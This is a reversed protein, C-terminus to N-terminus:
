CVPFSSMGTFSFVKKRGPFLIQHSSPNWTTMSGLRKFAFGKVGILLDDCGLAVPLISPDRRVRITLRTSISDIGGDRIDLHLIGVHVIFDPVHIDVVDGSQFIHLHWAIIFGVVLCTPFPKDRLILPVSLYLYLQGSVFM